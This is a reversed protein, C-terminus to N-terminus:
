DYRQAPDPIVYQIISGNNMTVEVTLDSPYQEGRKSFSYKERGTESIGERRVTGEELVAGSQDKLVVKQVAGVMSERLLIALTGDNDSVPKFLFGNGGDIVTGNPRFVAGDVLDSELEGTLGTSTTSATGGTAAATELSLSTADLEGTSIQNIMNSANLLAIEMEEVAISPDNAGGRDDFLADHNDDLQAARFSQSYIKDGDESSLSGDSVLGRLATIAAEEIPIYGNPLQLASKQADFSTQYQSAVDEGKMSTIREKILGAFLEEESAQGNPKVGIIETLLRSFDLQQQVVDSKVSGGQDDTLAQISRTNIRTFASVTMINEGQFERKCKGATAIALQLIASLM